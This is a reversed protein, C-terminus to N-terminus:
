LVEDRLIDLGRRYLMEAEDDPHLHTAALLICAEVYAIQRLSYENGSLVADMEEIERSRNALLQGNHFLKHTIAAFGGHYSARLKALEYIVPVMDDGRPDILKVAGTNPSWFINNFNLDGHGTVAKMRRPVIDAHHLQTVLASAERTDIRGHERGLRDITKGWLWPVVHARIGYTLSAQWVSREVETLVSDLVYAWTDPRGQRYLWLEALTPTDSVQEIFYGDCTSWARPLVVQSQPISNSLHNKIWDLQPRVDEGAKHMLGPSVEQVGHWERTMYSTRRASHLAALDGLDLWTPYTVTETQLVNLLASMPIEFGLDNRQLAQYAAGALVGAMPHYYAGITVEEGVDAQADIWTAGDHWAWSRRAPSPAVGVTLKAKETSVQLPEALYTDSMLVHVPEDTREGAVACYIADVPGRPNPQRLVSVNWHLAMGTHHVLASVDHENNPSAVVSIRDCGAKRLLEIQHLLHPRNGVPVLAKSGSGNLLSLRTGSGGALIVGIM